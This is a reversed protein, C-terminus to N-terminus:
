FRRGYGRSREQQIRLDEQLLEYVRDSLQMARLPDQLIQQALQAMEGQAEHAIPRIRWTDDAMIWVM